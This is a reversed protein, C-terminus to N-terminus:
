RSVVARSISFDIDDLLESNIGTGFKRAFFMPTLANDDRGIGNRLNALHAASVWAPSKRRTGDWGIWWLSGRIHERAWDAGFAPSLLISPIFTEDACWSRRWFGALDPRSEAVSVVIRAHERSLVKQVAGGAPVIGKPIARPIPLRVMHKRWAWHRYRLRALGGSRGWGAFPLPRMVAVSRGACQSLYRSIQATPVVPYDSGALVAIHDADTQALAMRYGDIEAPVINWNAWGSTRRPILSVRDSLGGTMAEFVVPETRADCHLFVPFPDLADILRRVQTPDNHALIVCALKGNGTRTDTDSGTDDPAPGPAPGAQWTPDDM